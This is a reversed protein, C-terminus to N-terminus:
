YPFRCYKGNVRLNRVTFVFFWISRCASFPCLHVDISVKIVGKSLRLSRCEWDFKYLVNLFGWLSQPTHLVWVIYFIVCTWDVITGNILHYRWIHMCSRYWMLTVAPHNFACMWQLLRWAYCHSFNGRQAIHLGGGGVTVGRTATRSPFATLTHLTCWVGAAVDYHVGLRSTM